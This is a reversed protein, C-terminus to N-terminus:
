SSEMKIFEELKILSKESSWLDKLSEEHEKRKDILGEQLSNQEDRSDAIFKTQLREKKQLTFFDNVNTPGNKMKTLIESKEERFVDKRHNVEEDIQNIKTKLTNRAGEIQAVKKRKKRVRFERIKQILALEDKDSM